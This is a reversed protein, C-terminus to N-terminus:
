SRCTAPSLRVRVLEAPLRVRRGRHLHDGHAGRRVHRRRGARSRAGVDHQLHHPAPQRAALGRQAGDVLPRLRVGAHRRKRRASLPRRSRARPLRIHRRDHADRQGLAAALHCVARRLGLRRAARFRSRQRPKAAAACFGVARSQPPRLQLMERRARGRALRVVRVRRFRHDSAQVNFISHYAVPHYPIGAIPAQAIPSM